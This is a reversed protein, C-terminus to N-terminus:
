RTSDAERFSTMRSGTASTRAGPRIPGRTLPDYVAKVGGFDGARIQAGPVTQLQADGFVDRYAESNLFFLPRHRGNYGPLLVPGGLSAGYQNLKFPPKPADTRAFFNRADLQENRLFEFLTGRFQNSGSKTTVVVVAGVSRSYEAGPNNTLVKFE